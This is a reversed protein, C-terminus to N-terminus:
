GSVLLKCILDLLSADTCVAALSTVMDRLAELETLATELAEM